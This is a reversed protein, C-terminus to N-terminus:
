FAKFHYILKLILAKESNASCQRYNVHVLSFLLNNLVTREQFKLCVNVIECSLEGCFDIIEIKSAFNGKAFGERRM